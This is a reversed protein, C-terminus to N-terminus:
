ISTVTTLPHNLKRLLVKARKIKLKIIKTIATCLPHTDVEVTHAMLSDLTGTIIAEEQDAEVVAEKAEAQVMTFAKTAQPHDPDEKAPEELRPMRMIHLLRFQGALMDEAVAMKMGPTGAMIEKKFPLHTETTASEMNNTTTMVAKKV